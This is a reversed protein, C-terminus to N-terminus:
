APDKVGHAEKAAALVKDDGHLESRNTVSNLTAETFTPLEFM